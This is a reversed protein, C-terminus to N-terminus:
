QRPPWCEFVSWRTVTVTSASEGGPEPRRLASPCPNTIIVAALRRGGEIARLRVRWRSPHKRGDRYVLETSPLTSIRERVLPGPPLFLKLHDVRPYGAAQWSAVDAVAAIRTADRSAVAAEFARVFSGVSAVGVSDEALRACAGVLTLIAALVTPCARRM